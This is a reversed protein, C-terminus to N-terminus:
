KIARIATEEGIHDSVIIFPIDLDHEKLVVLAELASVGPGAYEALVLDVKHGTLASELEVRTAVPVITPAYEAARLHQLFAERENESAGLVIVSLPKSM